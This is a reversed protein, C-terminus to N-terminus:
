VFSDHDLHVLHKAAPIWMNAHKLHVLEADCGQTNLRWIFNGLQSWVNDAIQQQHACGCAVHHTGKECCDLLVHICLKSTDAERVVVDSLVIQLLKLLAAHVSAQQHRKALELVRLLFLCHCGDLVNQNLREFLAVFQLFEDVASKAGQRFEITYKHKVPLHPIM